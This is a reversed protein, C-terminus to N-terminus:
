ARMVAAIATDIEKLTKGGSYRGFVRTPDGASTFIYLRPLTIPLSGGFALYIADSEGRLQNFNAGSTKLFRDLKTEDRKKDINIGVIGLKDNPIRNRVKALHKAETLCPACWTAWLSVVLPRGPLTEAGLTTASGDPHTLALTSLAAVSPPLPLDDAKASAAPAFALAGGMMVIARRTFM